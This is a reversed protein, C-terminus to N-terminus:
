KYDHQYTKVMDALQIPALSFPRIRESSAKTQDIPMWREGKANKRPAPADVVDPTGDASIHM